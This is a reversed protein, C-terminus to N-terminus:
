GAPSDQAGASAYLHLAHGSSKDPSFRAFVQPNQRFHAQLDAIRHGDTPHDSLIEMSGGQGTTQFKQFLWILGYPNFGASACTDSGKQDAASEVRRSFNQTQMTYVLNEGFQGINSRSLGTLAGILTILAAQGQAKGNLNVVDHHIDHSTEHCLVGALEEQNDVFKMLSDTVYVNGGPVAFANPAKEHVLIFHFGYPRGNGDVYQPSAVASIRSAIPDLTQYLPSNSPLIEGKQQLQQYVQAGIDTEQDALAPLALGATLATTLGLALLRKM